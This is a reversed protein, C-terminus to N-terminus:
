DAVRVLARIASRVLTVTDQTAMADYLATPGARKRGVLGAARAVELVSEFVRDPRKSSRLRARMEVLVTHVFGGYDYELGGCAYELAPRVLVAGGGGSRQAGRAAGADDGDRRDAPAGLLAWRRSFAPLRRTRSCGAARLIPAASPHLDAVAPRRLVAPEVRLSKEPTPTKGLSM